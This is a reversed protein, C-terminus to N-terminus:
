GDFSVGRRSLAAVIDPVGGLAVVEDPPLHHGFTQELGVALAVMGLSDWTDVQERRLDLRFQNPELLFVETLLDRLRDVNSAM